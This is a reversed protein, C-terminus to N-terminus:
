WQHKPGFYIIRLLGELQLNSFKITIKGFVIIKMKEKGRNQSTTVSTIM